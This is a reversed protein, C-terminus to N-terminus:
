AALNGGQLLKIWSIHFFLVYAEKQVAPFVALVILKGSKGVLDVIIELILLSSITELTLKHQASCGESYEKCQSALLAKLWVHCRHSSVYKRWAFTRTKWVPSYLTPWLDMIRKRVLLSVNWSSHALWVTSLGLSLFKTNWSEEPKNFSSVRGKFM